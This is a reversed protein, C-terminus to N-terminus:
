GCLCAYPETKEQAITADDRAFGTCSTSCGVDDQVIYGALIFRLFNHYIFRLM